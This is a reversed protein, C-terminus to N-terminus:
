RREPHPALDVLMQSDTVLIHAYHPGAGPMGDPIWFSFLLDRGGHPRPTFTPVSGTRRGETRNSLPTESWRTGDFVPYPYYLLVGITRALEAASMPRQARERLQFIREAGALGLTVRDQEVVAAVWRSGSRAVIVDASAVGGVDIRQPDRLTEPATADLEIAERQLAEEIRRLSEDLAPRYPRTDDAHRAPQVVPRVLAVPESPASPKCALTAAVIVLVLGISRRLNM